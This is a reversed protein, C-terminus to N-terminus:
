ETCINKNTSLGLLMWLLFISPYNMYTVEFMSYILMVIGAFRFARIGRKSQKAFASSYVAFAVAGGFLLLGFLGSQIACDLFINHVGTSIIETGLDYAIVSLGTGFWFNQIWLDIGLNVLMLRGSSFKNLNLQRITTGLLRIQLTDSLLILLGMLCFGIYLLAVSLYHKRECLLRTAGIFWWIVLFILAGKSNTLILGIILIFNVLIGQIKISQFFLIRLMLITLLNAGIVNSYGLPIRLYTKYAVSSFDYGNALITILTQIVLVVGYVSLIKVINKAQGTYSKFISYVLPMSFFLIASYLYNGLILKESNVMFILADLLSKALLLWATLDMGKYGKFALSILFMFVAFAFGIVLKNYDIHFVSIPVGGASDLEVFSMIFIEILFFAFILRERTIKIM